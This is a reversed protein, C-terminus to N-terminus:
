PVSPRRLSSTSALGPSWIATPPQRAWFSRARMWSFTPHTSTTKPVCLRALAGPRSRRDRSSPGSM